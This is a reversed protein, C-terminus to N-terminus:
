GGLSGMTAARGGCPTPRDAEDWKLRPVGPSFWSGIGHWHDDFLRTSWERRPHTLLLFSEARRLMQDAIERDGDGGTVAYIARGLERMRISWEVSPEGEQPLVSMHDVVAQVAAEYANQDFWPMWGDRYPSITNLYACVGDSATPLYDLRGVAMSEAYVETGGELELVRVVKFYRQHSEFRLGPTPAINTYATFQWPCEAPKSVANVTFEYPM